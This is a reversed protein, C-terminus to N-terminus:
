QAEGILTFAAWDKPNPYKKMTMLMAQRLAEAKNSNQQLQRYFEPMLVATTDDPISWLSVIISSTGASIFSRSLGVVGDGTIRGRGTNCASLVVLDANFKLNLIEYATLLGDDNNFPALAIAGPLGKKGIDDLLGHTALHIIKSNLMQQVIAQKTAQSGIIAQTKLVQAVAEAELEAGPLADLQVPLDGFKPPLSPMIPNGVILTNQPNIRQNKQKQQNTLDIVQISPATLITHKEILYKGAPDILAYFPLLFLSHQPILIVLDQPNNPLLDAIPQIFIQHLQQLQPKSQSAVPSFLSNRADIVLKKIDLDSIEEKNAPNKFANLDVQRLTIEGTPKIVWIYLERDSILSYEVLTAQEVAAIKQIEAITPPKITGPSSSSNQTEENALRQSLLEVFARSRGRESIELAQNPQKQIIFAKQLLKYSLNHSEFMSIKNADNLGPHLSEIVKISETLSVIAENIKNTELQNLGIIRLTIAISARDGITKQILLAQNLSDLSQTFKGQKQYIQGLNTLTVGIGAKDEEKQYIALAQQNFNVALDYQGLNTSIQAINNLTIAVGLSNNIEQYISLAQEYLTLAQKDKGQNSYIQGLNNLNVAQGQRVMSEASFANGVGARIALAQHVFAPNLSSKGLIDHLLQFDQPKLGQYDKGLNKKYIVSAQQALDLAQEYQGLSFYLAALNNRIAAEDGGYCLSSNPNQNFCDSILKIKTLAEQYAALAQGYESLNAYTVGLNNLNQVEGIRDDREQYIASLQKYIKLSQKYNGLKFYIAGMPNLTYEESTLLSDRDGKKIKILEQFIILAQQYSALARDYDRKRDYVEGLYQLTYGESARDFEPLKGLTKFIVLAQQFYDLARDYKGLSLYVEGIYNLSNGEGARAGVQRFIVLAQNYKDLASETEARQYLAYGEQNLYVAETIKQEITSNAAQALKQPSSIINNIPYSVSKGSVTLCLLLTTILLCIYQFSWRM